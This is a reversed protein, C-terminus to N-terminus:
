LGMIVVTQLVHLFHAGGQSQKHETQGEDRVQLTWNILHPYPHLYAFLFSSSSVLVAFGVSSSLSNGGLM